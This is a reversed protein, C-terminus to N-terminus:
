RPMLRQRRDHAVLKMVATSALRCRVNDARSTLVIPVRAGLVIGASDAGALYTLQKAIMNGAELEPVLLIDAEGAVPSVIHKIRAAEPSIANDFALPGDLVGGEIQGRDAMKCLAAAHLTSEIKANVTEIASLIAVKPQAIGLVHALDIANRCIDAKADLDPAINIAADTILLLRPYAPVDMVFVHSMRRDTRLGTTASVAAEMLEDTHLSGKMLSEVEGARAMAVAREAAAHSHPTTVIRYGSLDVGASEAAARIKAEPGVLVPVILRRRAAEIAGALSDRDCPHVVACSVPELPECRALLRALGDNRRLVVEPTAIDSYDIRQAPASVTAVGEVLVVGEDSAARCDFEIERKAPDKARAAVTATVTDGTRVRGAYTFRTGVIASGPGPLRRHLIGAILAIAAAGPASAVDPTEPTLDLHFSEVDGAVLSLAEVETATLKRSISDSEGIAIEDFTRNSYRDIAFSRTALSSRTIRSPPGQPAFRELGRQARDAADRSAGGCAAAAAGRTGAASRDM